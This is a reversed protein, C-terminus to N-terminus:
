RLKIRKALRRDIRELVRLQRDARVAAEDLRRRIDFLLAIRIDDGTMSGNDNVPLSFDRTLRRDTDHKPM